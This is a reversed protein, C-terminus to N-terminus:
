RLFWYLCELSVKNRYQAFCRSREWHSELAFKQSGRLVLEVKKLLWHNHGHYRCKCVQVSLVAIVCVRPCRKPRLYFYTDVLALVFSPFGVGLCTEVNAVGVIVVPSVYKHLTAGPFLVLSSLGFQTRWVCTGLALLTWWSPRSGSLWPLSPCPDTHRAVSLLCLLLLEPSSIINRSLGYSPVPCRPPRAVFIWPLLAIEFPALLHLCLLSLRHPCAVIDPTEGTASCNLSGLFAKWFIQSM